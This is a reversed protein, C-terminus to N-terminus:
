RAPARQPAPPTPPAPIVTPGPGATAVNVCVFIVDGAAQEQTFTIRATRGYKACFANATAQVDGKVLTPPVYGGSSNGIIEEKAGWLSGSCASLASALLVFMVPRFIGSM